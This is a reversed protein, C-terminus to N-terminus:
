TRIRGFVGFNRRTPDPGVEVYKGYQGKKLWVVLEITGSIPVHRYERRTLPHGCQQQQQDPNLVVWLGYLTELQMQFLEALPLHNETLINIDM